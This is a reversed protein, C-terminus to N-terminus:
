GDAHLDDTPWERFAGNKLYPAPILFRSLPVLSFRFQELLASLVSWGACDKIHFGNGGESQDGM